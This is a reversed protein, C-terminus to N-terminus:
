KTVTNCKPAFVTQIIELADEDMIKKGYDELYASTYDVKRAFESLLTKVKTFDAKSLGSVEFYLYYKEQLHYLSVLQGSFERLRLGTDVVLDFTEFEFVLPLEGPPLLELKRQPARKTVVMMLGDEGWQYFELTIPSGDLFFGTEDSAMGMMERFLQRALTRDIWLDGMKLNRTALDKGSVHIMLQELNNREFRM